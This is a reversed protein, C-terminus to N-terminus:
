CLWGRRCKRGRSNESFFGGDEYMWREVDGVKRCGDEWRLWWFGIGRRGIVMGMGM